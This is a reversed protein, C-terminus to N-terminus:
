FIVYLIYANYFKAFTNLQFIEKDRFIIEIERNRVPM